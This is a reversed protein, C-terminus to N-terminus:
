LVILDSLIMLTCVMASEGVGTNCFTANILFEIFFDKGNGTTFKQASKINQSPHTPIISQFSM